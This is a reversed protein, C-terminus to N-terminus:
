ENGIKITIYSIGLVLLAGTIFGGAFWLESSFNNKKLQKVSLNIQNNLFDVQTKYIDIEFSHAVKLKEIKLNYDVEKIDLEKKLRLKFKEDATNLKLLIEATASQNLLTGSFPAEQGKELTQMVAEQANVTCPLFCVLVVISIIKKLM